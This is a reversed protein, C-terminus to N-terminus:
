RSMPNQNSRGTAALAAFFAKTTVRIPSVNMNTPIASTKRRSPDRSKEATSRGETSDICGEPTKVTM